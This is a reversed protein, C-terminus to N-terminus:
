AHPQHLLGPVRFAECIHYSDDASEQVHARAIFWNRPLYRYNGGSLTQVTGADVARCDFAGCCQAHTVPDSRGSYWDHSVARNVPALDLLVVLSQTACTASARM